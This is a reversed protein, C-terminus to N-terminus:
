FYNKNLQLSETTSRRLAKAASKIKNPSNEKSVTWNTFSGKM